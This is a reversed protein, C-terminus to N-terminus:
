TERLYTERPPVDAPWGFAELAAQALHRAEVWRADDRIAADSWFDAHDEGGLRELFGDLAALKAAQDPTLTWYTPYTRAWDGLDLAMEDAKFAFDSPLFHAIQENADAALLQLAERLNRAVWAVIDDNECPSGGVIPM